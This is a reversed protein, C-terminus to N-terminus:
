LNDLADRCASVGHSYGNQHAEDLDEQTFKYGTRDEKGVVREVLERLCVGNCVLLGANAYNLLEEGSFASINTTSIDITSM